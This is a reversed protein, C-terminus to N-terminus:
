VFDMIVVNKFSNPVGISISPHRDIAIGVSFDEDEDEDHIEDNMSHLHGVKYRLKEHRCNVWSDSMRSLTDHGDTKGNCM